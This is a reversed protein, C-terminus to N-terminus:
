QIPEACWAPVQYGQSAYWSALVVRAGEASERAANDAPAADLARLAEIYSRWLSEFAPRAALGAVLAGLIAEGDPTMARDM